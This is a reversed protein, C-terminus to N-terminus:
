DMTIVFTSDPDAPSYFRLSRGEINIRRILQGLETGWHLWTPVNDQNAERDPDHSLRLTFMGYDIGNIIVRFPIHADERNPRREHREWRYAGFM